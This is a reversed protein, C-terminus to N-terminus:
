QDSDSNQLMSQSFAKGILDPYNSVMETWSDTKVLKGKNEWVFKFSADLLSNQDTLYAAVMLELANEL